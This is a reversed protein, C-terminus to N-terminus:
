IEKLPVGQRILMIAREQEAPTLRPPRGPHEINRKPPWYDERLWLGNDRQEWLGTAELGLGLAPLVGIRPKLGIIVHRQLDYILGETELLSWVIDRREEPTAENWYDAIRELTEGASFADQLIKEADQISPLPLSFLEARIREIQEDLAQ